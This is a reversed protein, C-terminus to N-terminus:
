VTFYGWSQQLPDGRLLRAKLERRLHTDEPLTNYDFSGPSADIKFAFSLFSATGDISDTVKFRNQFKIINSDPKLIERLQPSLLWSYTCFVVTKGAVQPYYDKLRERALRLSADVDDEQLGNDSSPIHIFVYIPEGDFLHDYKEFHKLGCEYELRGLRVLHCRLFCGMWLFLDFSIGDVGFDEYQSVWCNRVGDKHIQIQEEDYCRDAMNEAHIPQGALAAVMCITPSGHEAFPHEGRGWRSITLFDTKESFFLVYHMLWCIRNLTQDQKLVAVEQHFRPKYYVEDFGYYDLIAEFDCSELWDPRYQAMATEYCSEWAPPLSISIYEALTNLAM